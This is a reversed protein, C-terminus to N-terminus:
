ATRVRAHQALAAAAMKERNSRKVDVQQVRREPVLRHRLVGAWLRFNLDSDIKPFHTQPRPSVMASM